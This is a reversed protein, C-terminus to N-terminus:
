HARVFMLKQVLVCKAITQVDTGLKSAHYM